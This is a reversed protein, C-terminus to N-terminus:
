NVGIDAKRDKVPIIRANVTGGSEGRGKKSRSV